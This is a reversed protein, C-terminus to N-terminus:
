GGYASKMGEAPPGPIPGRLGHGGPRHLGGDAEPHHTRAGPWRGGPGRQGIGGPLHVPQHLYASLVKWKGLRYIRLQKRVPSPARLLRLRKREAKFSGKGTKVQCLLIRTRGLAVVDFLSRSGASRLVTHFEKRGKLIKMLELEAKYGRRYLNM